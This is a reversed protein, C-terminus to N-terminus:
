TVSLLQRRAQLFSTYTGVVGTRTNDHVYSAIEAVYLLMLRQAHRARARTQLVAEEGYVEVFADLTDVLDRAADRSTEQAECAQISLM